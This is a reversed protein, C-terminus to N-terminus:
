DPDWTRNCAPRTQGARAAHRLATNDSWSCRTASRGWPRGNEPLLSRKSKLVRTSRGGGCRELPAAPGLSTHIALRPATPRVVGAYPKKCLEKKAMKSKGDYCNGQPRVQVGGSRDDLRGGQLGRSQRVQRGQWPPPWEQQDGPRQRSRRRHKSCSWRPRSYSSMACPPEGSPLPWGPTSQRRRCALHGSAARDAQGPQRGQGHHRRHPRSSM